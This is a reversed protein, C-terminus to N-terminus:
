YRRTAVNRGEGPNLWLNLILCGRLEGDREVAVPWSSAYGKGWHGGLRFVFYTWSDRSPSELPLSRLLEMEGVAELSSVAARPLVARGAYAGLDIAAIGDGRESQVVELQAGAVVSVTTSSEGLEFSRKEVELRGNELSSCVLQFGAAIEGERSTWSVAKVPFGSDSTDDPMENADPDGGEKTQLAIGIFDVPRDPSCELTANVHELPLYQPENRLVLTVVEPPWRLQERIVDDGLHDLFSFHWIATLHDTASARVEISSVKRISLEFDGDVIRRMEEFDDFRLPNNSITSWSIHLHVGDVSNGDEDVFVFRTDIVGVESQGFLGVAEVSFGGDLGAAVVLIVATLTLTRAIVNM